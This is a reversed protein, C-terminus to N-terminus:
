VVYYILTIVFCLPFLHVYTFRLEEGPKVLITAPVNNSFGRYVWVQVWNGYFGGITKWKFVVVNQRLVTFIGAFLNSHGLHPKATSASDSSSTM